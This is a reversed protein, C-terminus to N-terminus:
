KLFAKILRLKFRTYPPYKIWLEFWLPKKIVTKKHSFCDFGAKGHYHGMGSDGIGGFPTTNNVFYVVTDNIMGGGSRFERQIKKAKSINRTFIYLALPSPKSKLSEILNDLDSFTLVPMIPGFVEEKMISDNHMVRSIITPEIFRSEALGRGGIEIRENDIFGMLRNYHRDDIIGTLAESAEPNDGYNKRINIKMEEVLQGAISEHVYIHDPSVCAQGSNHFKGWVIRKATMKIDCDHLVITPNKGGLELTVPTLFEAAAKMIIKGVRTSGTFFIKDFRNKLLESAVEPGGEVVHFLEAPFNENIIKALMNSTHGAVESPKLIITNGASIASVVPNLALQVPYNWPSIVLSNGFPVPYVRSQGPLNILSTPPKAPKAWKGLRRLHVSIEAYVLGLENEMVEFYSKGFDKYVAEAIEKENEKLIRKLRALNEKRYLLPFTKGELFHRRQREITANIHDVLERVLM